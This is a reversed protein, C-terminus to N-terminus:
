WLALRVTGRVPEDNTPNIARVVVREADVHELYAVAAGAGALQWQVCPIVGLRHELVARGDELDVRATMM